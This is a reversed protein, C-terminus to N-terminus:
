EEPGEEDLVVDSLGRAIHALRRRRGVSQEVTRGMVFRLRNLAEFDLDEDSVPRPGGAKYPQAFYAASVIRELECLAEVYAVELLQAYHKEDDIDSLFPVTEM